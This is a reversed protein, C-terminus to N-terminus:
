DLFKNAVIYPELAAFFSEADKEEEFYIAPYEFTGKNNGNHKKALNIYEQKEINLYEITDNTSLSNNLLIIYGLTFNDIGLKVERTTTAQFWQLSM